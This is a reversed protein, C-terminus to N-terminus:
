VHGDKSTSGAEAIARDLADWKRFYVIGGHEVNNNRCDIHLWDVDREIAKIYKYDERHPNAIIDQRIEEATVDVPVLDLARGFKHQSLPSGVWSSFIRFGRYHNRGGWKWTNCVLKGYRQRLLDATRLIRDDFILYLKNSNDKAYQNYIDRPVLEEPIFFSPHYM